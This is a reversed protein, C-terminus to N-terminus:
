IAVSGLANLRTLLGLTEGDATGDVRTSRFHRQFAAVVLDLACDPDYGYATLLARADGEVDPGPEPWLGLGERALARWPFLEGPDQRRAPAVDSHGVLNRRSIGHRGVISHLLAVLAEIQPEPFPRYGFEHGPNVLEIGISRSNVDRDGRWYALGAHWARQEEAVLREIRGDEDVLYHASVQAAPDCLRALAESATRMGTYHLVVMDIPAGERRPGFNPSPLPNM